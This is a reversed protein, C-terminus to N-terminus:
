NALQRLISALYILPNFDMAERQLKLQLKLKELEHKEPAEEEEQDEQIQVLLHNIEKKIDQMAFEDISSVSQQQFENQVPIFQELQQGTQSINMFNNEQNEVQVESDSGYDSGLEKKLRNKEVRKKELKDFVKIQKLREKHKNVEETKGIYEVLKALATHLTPFIDNQLYEIEENTEITNNGLQM